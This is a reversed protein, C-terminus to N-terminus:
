KQNIHERPVPSRSREEQRAFTAKWVTSSIRLRSERSAITDQMVIQANTRLRLVRKPISELKARLRSCHEKKAGSAWLVFTGPKMQHLLAQNAFTAKAAPSRKEKRKTPAVVVTTDLQVHQVSSLLSSDPNSYKLILVQHVCSRSPLEEQVTISQQASLLILQETPMTALSGLLAYTASRWELSPHTNEEIVYSRLETLAITVKLAFDELCTITLNHLNPVVWVSMDMMALAVQLLSVSQAVTHATLAHCALLSAQTQNISEQQVHCQTHQESQALTAQQVLVRTVTRMHTRGAVLELQLRQQNVAQVFIVLMVSDLSPLNEVQATSAQHVLNVNHSILSTNRVAIPELQVRSRRRLHLPTQITTM